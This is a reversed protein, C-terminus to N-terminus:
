ENDWKGMVNRGDSMRLGKGDSMKEGIVNYKVGKKTYTKEKKPTAKKAKAPKSKAGISKKYEASYHSMAASYAPSHSGKDYKDPNSMLEHMSKHGEYNKAHENGASNLFEQYHKKAVEENGSSASKKKAIEKGAGPAASKKSRKDTKVHQKVVAVKGSKTKRKYTKVKVQKAM